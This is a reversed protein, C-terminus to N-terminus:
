RELGSSKKSAQKSAQRSAPRSAQSAQKSAQTERDQKVPQHSFERGTNERADQQTVREFIEGRDPSAGGTDFAKISEGIRSDLVRETDARTEPVGPNIESGTESLFDGIEATETRDLTQGLEQISENAAALNARSEEILRWAQQLKGSFEQNDGDPPPFEQATGRDLRDM